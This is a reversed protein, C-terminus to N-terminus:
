SPRKAIGVAEISAMLNWIPPVADRNITTSGVLFADSNNLAQSLFELSHENISYCTVEADPLVDTIGHAITKALRMTNGYASAYFVPIRLNVSPWRSSWARYQEQVWELMVGRTLVPGHSNAAYLVDLAAMKDLGALVYEAFPSMIADYYQKVAKRYDHTDLVKSDILQPECFHAGLFDGCFLVRDAELWSFMTDPWHLMPASIFRLSVDGLSLSDGDQPTILQYDDRNTIQKLYLSGAKSTVITINPYRDLLKAVSGSHDPECHNLILYDPAADGIVETINDFHYAAFSAHSAEVLAIKDGGKIIYSNYSTGYETHMTVDFTRMSPNLVSTIYVHESLQNM